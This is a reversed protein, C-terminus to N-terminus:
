QINMMGAFGMFTMALVGTILMVVGTGRLPEPVNSYGMKQRLGAMILIALTWGLGAGLGFAASQVLTYERLVMFLSAGLIACNVTILPLFIGLAYYLAPSFREVFMEVFQVFAAIVAIFIIFALVELGLPVLVCHYILYNLTTTSVLVFTVATGLGAATEISNSCVLFSCMGLFSALLINNTLISAVFINLAPTSNM